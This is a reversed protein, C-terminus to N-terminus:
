RFNGILMLGDVRNDIQTYLLRRGDPSIDLGPYNSPTARAPTLVTSIQRTAFDFFRVHPRADIEQYFYIGEARVTWARTRRVGILESVAEELGSEKSGSEKSGSEKSGAEPVGKDLLISWIGEGHERRFYYLRKGDASELSEGGDGQTVQRAPGGAFPVKWIHSQGGRDSLFYIWRGDHSWSPEIELSPEPTLLRPTGGAASIVYVDSSGGARSDFAVWRGDPSWRPSGTRGELFTLQKPATGDSNATWLEEAGTRWSVFVLKRGDPSFRPSDDEVSSCLLCKPLQPSPNSGNSPGALEYQWINSDVFSDSYVLRNGRLSVFPFTPHSAMSGVPEPTGGAARIRWLNSGAKRSSDFVLERSDPTWAIGGTVQGDFTLRRAEGGQRPVVFLERAPAMNRTFALQTGDPSWAVWREGHPQPSTLQRLEGTKLSRVLIGGNGVPAYPAVYAIENGDPSWAFGVGVDAIKREADGGPPVRVVGPFAVVMELFGTSTTRHFALQSGDPSWAPYRDETPGSTVQVTEGNLISKVYINMAPRGDQRPPGVWSFAVKEGDPSFAPFNQQGPLATFPVARSSPILPLGSRPLYIGTGIALAVALAAWLWPRFRRRAPPADLEPDRLIQELNTQAEAVSQWRAEPNPALCRSLFLAIAPPIGSLSERTLEESGAGSPPPRAILMEYLVLGLSFIDDRADLKGATARGQPEQGPHGAEEMAALGFDLLKVGNKTLMINAPTLDGHVTGAAHGEALASATQVTLRLAEEPPLPGHALREGLTEGGVLEMVIGPRGDFDELGYITRIHPHLLGLAARAERHFRALVSQPTEGDRVPLIKVAVQRGLKLDEARYVSATSAEGLKELIQYRFVKAADPQPPVEHNGEIEARQVEGIFRYGRKSITEIYRTAGPEEGLANRLRKLASNISQDFDVVTDGPWLRQRIESRLVVEGPHDLLMLLIQFAQEPLHIRTAHRLLDGSRVDLKFPGFRVQPM